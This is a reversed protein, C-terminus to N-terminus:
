GKEKQIWKYTGERDSTVEIWEGPYSREINLKWERQQIEHMPKNEKKAAEVMLFNRDENEQEVTTKVWTEDNGAPLDRITLLGRHNEGVIRNNKLTQVQEMRNRRRESVSEVTKPTADTDGSQPKTYQYVDLRVNIDVKLPERTALNVDSLSCGCVALAVVIAPPQIASM